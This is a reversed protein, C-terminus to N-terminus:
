DAAEKRRAVSAHHSAGLCGVTFHRRIVEPLNRAMPGMRQGGMWCNSRIPIVTARLWHTIRTVSKRSRGVAIQEREIRGQGARPRWRVISVGAEHSV